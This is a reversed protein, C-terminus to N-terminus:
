EIPTLPPRDGLYASAPDDFPFGRAAVAGLLRRVNQLSLQTVAQAAPHDLWARSVVYGDRVRALQGTRTMGAFHRSVTAHGIGMTRAVAAAGVPRTAPQPTPAIPTDRCNGALVTSFLVLDLWGDHKDRNTQTIALMIDAAAQVGIAPTYVVDRRAPLPEGAQGLHEVFRVFADHTTRILTAIPEAQLQDRDAFLGGDRREILGAALLANVHRRMTEYPQSLSAALANASIPTAGAPDALGNMRTILTYVVFRDLWGDFVRVGASNIGTQLEALARTIPQVLAPSDPKAM